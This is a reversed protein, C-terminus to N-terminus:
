GRQVLEAATRELVGVQREMRRMQQEEVSGADTAASAGDVQSPRSVAGSLLASSVGELRNAVIEMREVALGSGTGVVALTTVARTLRRLYTAFTLAEEWRAGRGVRPEMMLRDLTEEADNIALGCSRRAPALVEREAMAREAADVGWFQVMAKVYAADAAAGRALLRGLEIQEREPWLLRMALVAVLAGLVTTEMRVGAFHWDRLHPLSMLVFTPTLFFCYWAYDVAYTALTFVSTVTIVAIIGAESHVWAALVAALVGGAITGGVRQVSRRLTGSGYPQLVIISTMALWFGHQLNMARILVVDLGGVFAMRLAHRMMVSEWTWNARLADMWGTKAESGDDRSALLSWRNAMARFEVGSWVARVSEFAIEVNQLSDRQDAALHALVSGAAGRLGDILAARGRVYELSHSGEPAFSSGGDRPRQRLGDAVAREAGSLWHLAEALATQSAEDAAGEGMETWRMTTAFLMDATELLV